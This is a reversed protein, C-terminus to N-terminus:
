SVAKKEKKRRWFAFRDGFLASFLGSRISLFLYVAAGAAAGIAAVLVSEVTGDRYDIWRGVLASVAMVALSMLATLIAMFVTRRLVFRYRYRTYRQIVWLNFAVSVFYGAMTAVIAGVTEWEMILRTNLSLKVLLGAALSIVTFRQQNIGQMIAATVSFLAYLIAAPAYWRLVQEGLPDYSYFSSYMPGALVAMGIVAPMTLFMLVQFTQNLYQRLAKRNQEVHAKTITPILALSFSTALTVPIIVLKQAWMNFVSYAHESINGLGAAAMAHNFTFQDILQYLSMSLGVFVFPISSLLLEKYMAPLSVSVEGRDRELLSRLYPRRKWWYVVLVLLGGVAGVFAAFTAASVATVISGDWIRLIVYCAGLLFVIRVIQEVVQSLATPGMSEHGQFFGRILSMMPVIILAFSVARIVAVVDDVSNVNTEADIVHPALVPALGYLILWSAVGSALMLVLGSRFLTYGVRYEELANYKSVFKSVAVPLGATALSLFIQYPVYGYGYLAGGREGVLHYFPIVYFLGLLRSIMVGATLIFTGRLLKSTSM